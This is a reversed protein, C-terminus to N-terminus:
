SQSITANGLKVNVGNSVLKVAHQGNGNGSLLVLKGNVIEGVLPTVTGDKKTISVLAVDGNQLTAKQGDKVTVFSCRAIAGLFQIGGIRSGTSSTNPDASPKTTTASAQAPNNGITANKNAAAKTPDVWSAALQSAQQTSLPTGGCPKGFLSMVSQVTGAQAAAQGGGCGAFAALPFVLFAVALLGLIFLGPVKTIMSPKIKNLSVHKMITEKERVYHSRAQHSSFM